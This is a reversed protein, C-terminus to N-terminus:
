RPAGRRVPELPAAVVDAAAFPAEVGRHERHEVQHEEFRSRGTRVPETFQQSPPDPLNVAYLHSPMTTFRGVEVATVPSAGYGLDVVVPRPGSRRLRWAQPGALWRDCRRLRNPNTTGRTITGVPRQSAM